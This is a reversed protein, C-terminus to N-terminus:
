LVEKPFIKIYYHQLHLVIIQKINKANRFVNAFLTASNIEDIGGSRM